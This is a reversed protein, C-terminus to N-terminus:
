ESQPPSDLADRRASEELDRKSHDRIVVYIPYTFAKLKAYVAVIRANIQIFDHMKYVHARENAPAVLILDNPYTPSLTWTGHAIVNRERHRARMDSVIDQFPGIQGPARDKCIALVLDLRGRFSEIHEFVQIALPHYLPGEDDLPLYLGALMSYLVTLNYEIFSWNALITAMQM